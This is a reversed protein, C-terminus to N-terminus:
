HDTNLHINTQKNKKQKNTKSRKPCNFTFFCPFPIPFLISKKGEVTKVSPRPTYHGERHLPYTLSSVGHDRKTHSFARVLSMFLQIPSNLLVLLQEGRGLRTVTNSFQSAVRSCGPQGCHQDFSRAARKVPISVM